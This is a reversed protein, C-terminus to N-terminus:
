ALSAVIPCCLLDSSCTLLYVGTTLVLQAADVPFWAAGWPMGATSMLCWRYSGRILGLLGTHMQKRQPVYQQLLQKAAAPVPLWSLPLNNSHLHQIACLKHVTRSSTVICLPLLLALMVLRGSSIALQLRRVSQATAATNLFEAAALAITCCAEATITALTVLQQVARKVISLHQECSTTARCAVHVAMHHAQAGQAASDATPEKTCSPGTQETCLALMPWPEQRQVPETQNPTRCRCCM